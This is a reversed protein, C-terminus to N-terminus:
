VLASLAADETRDPEPELFVWKRFSWFRWVTGIATGVLTSSINFALASHLGLAYESFAVPIESLGLGVLSLLMFLSLGRGVGSDDLHKWTWHRNAFYSAVSAIATALGFSTLPGLNLGFHFSNNLVITFVFALAGIVGFKAIEHIVHEFTEYFHRV